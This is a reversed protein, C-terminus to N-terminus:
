PEHLHADEHGGQQTWYLICRSGIQGIRSLKVEKGEKSTLLQLYVVDKSPDHELQAHQPPYCQFSREHKCCVKYWRIQAWRLGPIGSGNLAPYRMVHGPVADYINFPYEHLSTQTPARGTGPSLAPADGEKPTERAGMPAPSSSRALAIATAATLGIAWVLWLLKYWSWKHWCWITKVRLKRRELPATGRPNEKIGAERRERGERGDRGDRGKPRSSSGMDFRTDDGSNGLLAEISANSPLSSSVSAPLSHTSMTAAMQALRSDRDRRRSPKKRRGDDLSSPRRSNISLPSGRKSVPTEM